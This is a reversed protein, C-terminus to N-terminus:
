LHNDNNKQVPKKIKLLEKHYLYEWDFCFLNRKQNAIEWATQYGHASSVRVIADVLSAPDGPEFLVHPDKLMHKIGDVDSGIVPVGLALAELVVNPFQDERSPVVLLDHQLIISVIDDTWPITTVSLQTGKKLGEPPDGLGVLTVEKINTGKIDPMVLARSLTDSGKVMSPNGIFLLREPREPLASTQARTRLEPPLDNEIVDVKKPHVGYNHCFSNKAQPTQVTIHTAHSYAFILFFHQLTSRTWFSLRKHLSLNDRELRARRAVDSRVGISLPADTLYSTLVAAPLSTEGFTLVLEVNGKLKKLDRRLLFVGRLLSVSVSSSSHKPPSVPIYTCELSALADLRPPTLWTLEQESQSLHHILRDFRRHGGTKPRQHHSLALIM